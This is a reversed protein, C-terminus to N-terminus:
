HPSWAPFKSRLLKATRPHIPFVLQLTKAAIDSLTMVLRRLREENDTNEARHVTVLGYRHPLLGLRDLINSRLKALDRNFLVADYMIDGTWIAKGSLGEKELNEMATATPALLLDSVHDTVVRNIEEPMRRNFSRVGAEVHAVPIHLKAAALAGALTSNTDGYTVAMHPRMELLVKEMKELM